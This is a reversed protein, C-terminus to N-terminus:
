SKILESMAGALEDLRSPTLRNGPGTVGFGARMEGDEIWPVAVAAVGDFVKEHDIAYGRRAIDEVNRRLDQSIETRARLSPNYALFLQGIASGIMTVRQGTQAAVHLLKRSEIADLFYIDDGSPVALFVTEGTMEFLAELKPRLTERLEADNGAVRAINLIRDGLHYRVDGQRRKVYGLAVLTNLLNHATPTTLGSIDTIEKLKASGGSRALIELLHLARSVSQIM